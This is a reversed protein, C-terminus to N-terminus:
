WDGTGTHASANLEDPVFGTEHVHGGGTSEGQSPKASATNFM